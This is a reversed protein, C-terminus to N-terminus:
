ASLGLATLPEVKLLTRISVLAAIPGTALLTVVAIIIKQGDFVFPITPPMMAALLGVGAGGIILGLVTTIMVQLLMTMAILWNSAGIAKLMGVQAIKQLAQIQFFGGIILLVILLAFKQQTDVVSQMDSFGPFSEYATVPDTVEVKPVKDEISAAIEAEAAPNTLQVAAVTFIPERGGGPRDQPKVKEWVRLPVFISPLFNYKKGETYGVVKLAYFQEEAGQTVKITLTSGLPINARDLVHQDIVVEEAREDGLEGGKFVLPAGPMGPEVGVLAVDLRETEGGRNLLISAVSFGVPGVAEVGDLRRLDNLRSTGLRSAPLSFDVDAQFVVMDADITEIYEKASQALGDGMAAVFIVLLTVLTVILVITMFRIKKRLMEKTALYFPM